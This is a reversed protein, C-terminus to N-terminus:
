GLRDDGMHDVGPRFLRRLDDGPTDISASTYSRNAVAVSAVDMNVRGHEAIWRRLDGDTLVGELVGHETTCFIIRAKNANIKELARLLPDESFVVYPALNREIIM